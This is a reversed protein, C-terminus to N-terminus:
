YWAYIGKLRREVGGSVGVEENFFVAEKELEIANKLQLRKRLFLTRNTVRKWQLM